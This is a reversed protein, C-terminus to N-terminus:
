TAEVTAKQPTFFFFVNVQNTFRFTSFLKLLSFYSVKLKAVKM